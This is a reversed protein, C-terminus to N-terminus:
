VEVEEYIGPHENRWLNMAEKAEEIGDFKDCDVFGQSDGFLIRRGYRIVWDGTAESDTEWDDGEDGRMMLDYLYSAMASSFKGLYPKHDTYM